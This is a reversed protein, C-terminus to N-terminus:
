EPDAKGDESRLSKLKPIQRALTLLWLIFYTVGYFGVYWHVKDFIAALLLPVIMGNSSFINRKLWSISRRPTSRRAFVERSEARQSDSVGAPHILQLYRIEALRTLLKGVSALFALAMPWVSSAAQSAALGLPLFMLGYQIDHSIPEAYIGGVVSRTQRFRAVEGDCGDLVTAFFVLCAGLISCMRDQLLFLSVGIFFVTVSIFTIQNPTVPTLLFLKTFYISFFRATKGTLTEREPAPATAQCRARLEKINLRSM